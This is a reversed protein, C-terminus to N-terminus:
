SHKQEKSDHINGTIEYDFDALEKWLPTGQTKDQRFSMDLAWQGARECFYVQCKSQIKGEDTETWDSLVDGEYIDKGNKDKLGTFQEWIWGRDEFLQEITWGEKFPMKPNNVLINTITNYYRFKIERM